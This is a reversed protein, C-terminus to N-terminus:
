DCDKLQRAQCDRAMKRAEAIQAVTIKGAAIDRYTKATANGSAAALDFWMYARVPDPLVGPGKSYMLGLNIQADVHGQRAALRYWKVAEADDQTAGQGQSYMRGLNYQARDDGQAAARQFSKLATAYDQGKYAGFGDAVDDAHTLGPTFALVALIVWQIM